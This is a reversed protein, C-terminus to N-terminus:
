IHATIRVFCKMHPSHDQSNHRFYNYAQVISMGYTSHYSMKDFLAFTFSQIIRLHLSRLASGTAIIIGIFISALAEKLSPPILIPVPQVPTDM